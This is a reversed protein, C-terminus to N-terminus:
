ASPYEGRGAITFRPTLPSSLPDDTTTGIGGTSGPTTVIEVATDARTIWLNHIQEIRLSAEKEMFEISLDSDLTRALLNVNSMPIAIKSRVFRRRINRFVDEVSTKPECISTLMSKMISSELKDIGPKVLECREKFIRNGYLFRILRDCVPSIREKGNEWRSVTVKTVGLIQALDKARIKMEKRLYVIEKGTLLSDKTLLKHAIIRHIEKVKSIIPNVEKCKSCEYASIGKLVVNQLGSETYEYDTKIKKMEIECKSCLM